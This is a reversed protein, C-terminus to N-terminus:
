ISCDIIGMILNDWGPGQFHEVETDGVLRCFVLGQFVVPKKDVEDEIVSHDIISSNEKVENTSVIHHGVILSAFQVWRWYSAHKNSPSPNDVVYTMSM